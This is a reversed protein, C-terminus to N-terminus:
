LAGFQMMISKLIRPSVFCEKYVRGCDHHEERGIRIAEQLVTGNTFEKFWKHSSLGDIIKDTSTPNDSHSAESIMSCIIRQVCPTFYNNGLIVENITNGMRSWHSDSSRYNMGPGPKSLIPVALTLIATLIGAVSLGKTNVNILPAIENNEDTHHLPITFFPVSVDWNIEIEGGTTDFSILQPKNGNFFLSNLKTSTRSEGDGIVRTCSLAFLLLIPITSDSAFPRM